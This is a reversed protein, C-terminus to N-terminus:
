PKFAGSTSSSMRPPFPAEEALDTLNEKRPSATSKRRGQLLSLAGSENTQRATEERRQFKELVIFCERLGDKLSRLTKIGELEIGLQVMTRAIEPRIGTLVCMTGLLRAARTM